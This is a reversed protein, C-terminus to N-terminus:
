STKKSHLLLNMPKTPLHDSDFFEGRPKLNLIDEQAYYENGRDDTSYILIQITAGNQLGAYKLARDLLDYSLEYVLQLYEVTQPPFKMPNAQNLKETELFTKSGNDTQLLLYIRSIVFPRNGQNSIALEVGLDMHKSSNKPYYRPNIWLLNAFGKRYKRFFQLYVTVLSIILSFTSIIIPIWPSM